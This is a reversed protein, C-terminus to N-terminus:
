EKQFKLLDLHHLCFLVAAGNTTLGSAVWDRYFEELPMTVVEIFEDHDLEQPGVKVCDHIVFTHRIQNSYPGTNTVNVLEPTGLWGTEEKLERRMAEIPDEGDEISGSPLDIMLKEPGPRFEKVLIVEKDKTLPLGIVFPKHNGVYATKLKGNPLKYQREIQIYYPSTRIAKESLKVWTITETSM